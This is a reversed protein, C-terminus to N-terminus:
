SVRAELRNRPLGQCEADTTQILFCKSIIYIQIDKVPKTHMDIISCKLVVFVFILLVCVCLCVDLCVCVCVCSVTM